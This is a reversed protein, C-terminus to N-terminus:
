EMLARFLEEEGVIEDEEMIARIDEEEPDEEPILRETLRVYLDTLINLDQRIKRLENLEASMIIGDGNLTQKLKVNSIGM